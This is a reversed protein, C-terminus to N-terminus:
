CQVGINTNIDQILYLYHQIPGGCSFVTTPNISPIVCFIEEASSVVELIRIIMIKDFLNSFIKAM